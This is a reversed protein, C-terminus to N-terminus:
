GGKCEKVFRSPHLTSIKAQANTLARRSGYLQLHMQTKPGQKKLGDQQLIRDLPAGRLTVVFAHAMENTIPDVDLQINEKHHKEQEQTDTILKAAKAIAAHDFGTLKIGCGKWQGQANQSRADRIPVRTTPIRINLHSAIEKQCNDCKREDGQLKM